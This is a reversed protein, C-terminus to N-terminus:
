KKHWLPHKAYEPIPFDEEEIEQFKGALFEPMKRKITLITWNQLWGFRKEAEKDGEEIRQCIEACFSMFDLINEKTRGSYLMTKIARKVEGFEAGSLNIGKYKQYADTLEKYTENSVKFDKRKLSSDKSESNNSITYKNIINNIEKDIQPSFNAGKITKNKVMKPKNECEKSLTCFKCGKSAKLLYYINSHGRGGGKEVQLYGVETLKKIANKAYRESVNAREAITKFNPHIKECGGFTALAGYVCKEAHTIHKCAIVANNVWHWDGNRTDRIEM